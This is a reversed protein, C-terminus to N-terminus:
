QMSPNFIIALKLILFMKLNGIFLRKTLFQPSLPFKIKQLQFGSVNEKEIQPLDEKQVESPKIIRYFSKEYSNQQKDWNWHIPGSRKAEDKESILEKQILAQREQQVQTQSQKEVLQEPGLKAASSITKPLLHLDVCGWLKKRFDDETVNGLIPKVQTITQEIIEKFFNEALDAKQYRGFQDWPADEVKDCILSLIDAASNKKLNQLPSEKM